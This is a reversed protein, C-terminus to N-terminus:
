QRTRVPSSVVRAGQRVPAGEPDSLSVSRRKMRTKQCCMVVPRLEAVSQVLHHASSGVCRHVQDISQRRVLAARRHHRQALRRLGVLAHSDLAPCRVVSSPASVSWLQFHLDLAGAPLRHTRDIGNGAMDEFYLEDRAVFLPRCGSWDTLSLVIGARTGAEDVKGSLWGLSPRPGPAIGVLVQHGSTAYM